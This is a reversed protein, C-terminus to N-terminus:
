DRFKGRTEKMQINKAQRRNAKVDVGALLDVFRNENECESLVGSFSEIEKGM